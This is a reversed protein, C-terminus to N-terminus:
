APPRAHWVDLRRELATGLRLLADEDFLRGWLTVGHPTGDERFGARLTLSPHGTNNTILLLSAAFSPSVLVDAEAFRDAMMRMVRRRFRDAQVLEIAPIFWTQRFTNPWAEDDQWVLLDDLDARTLEEFAAAAEAYLITLLTDYPWDPLGVEVLECGLGRVHDLVARDLDTAGRGEFWAPDYGVRLDAVPRRADHHLPLDISSPDRDDPGNLAELVLGCDAVRRAIPGIKDLSWCLAMAGGRGVRGFTPRLGTTGCRMCPSVISGYTETGLAFSVLGAAVAAASGASSGSSGQEPNWPNRTRGGFWIDNYALAGLTLKAVLVAGADRLRQVTTADGAPVRDRFPTAGWTTAIDATDLLDKAGWPLGHLPGLWTGAALLEDARRAQALALEDTRTVVCELRPGHARLRDLCITTLRESTLDGRRIWASQAAASAFAISEDDVPMPGPDEDAHVVPRAERDFTMGPLRPDFRTAPALTNPPPDGASRRRLMALQDGITGLMQLREDATFRIGALREAEAFTAETVEPDLPGEPQGQRAVPGPEPTRPAAGARGAAAAVGAMATSWVLFDRRNGIRVPEANM